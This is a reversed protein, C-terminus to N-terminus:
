GKWCSIFIQNSRKVVNKRRLTSSMQCTRWSFSFFKYMGFTKINRNFLIYVYTNTSTAKNLLITLPLPFVIEKDLPKKSLQKKHTFWSATIDITHRKSLMDVIQKMKYVTWSLVLSLWITSFECYLTLWETVGWNFDFLGAFLGSTSTVSNQNTNTHLANM